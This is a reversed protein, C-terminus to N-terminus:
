EKQPSHGLLSVELITSQALVEERLTTFVVTAEVAEASSVDDGVAGEAAREQRASPFCSFEAEALINHILGRAWM